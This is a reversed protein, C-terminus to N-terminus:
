IHVLASPELDISFLKMIVGCPLALDPEEDFCIECTKEVKDTPTATERGYGEALAKRM